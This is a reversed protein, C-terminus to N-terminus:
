LTFLRMQELQYEESFHTYVATTMDSKDVHDTWVDVLEKQIKCELCRSIFTHRLDKLSHNPCLKKFIRTLHDNATDALAAAAPLYAVLGDAIPIKRRTKPQGRRKKGNLVSVFGGHIEMGHLENRRIGTYLFLMFVSQLPNGRCAEVFDSIEQRSLAVGKKREHQPLKIYTMPNSKILGEGLASRFIGGLLDRLTELLRGHGAELFKGFFEQLKMTSIAKLQMEGFQPLIHLQYSRLLGDYTNPEVSPRKVKEFWEQAFEAFNKATKRLSRNSEDKVSKAWERFKQEVEKKSKSTFQVNYGDRRYRIQHLGDSTIRYRGNKLYPMEEMEKKSFDLGTQNVDAESQPKVWPLYIVSGDTGSTKQPEESSTESDSLMALLKATLEGIARLIERVEKEDIM